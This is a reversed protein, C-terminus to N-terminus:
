ENRGSYLLVTGCTNQNELQRILSHYENYIRFIGNVSSTIISQLTITYYKENM